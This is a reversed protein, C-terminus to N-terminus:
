RGMVRCEWADVQDALDEGRFHSALIEKARERNFKPATYGYDAAIDCRKVMNPHASILEDLRTKM